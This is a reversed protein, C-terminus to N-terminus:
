IHSGFIHQDKIEIIIIEIFTNHHLYNKSFIYFQKLYKFSIQIKLM